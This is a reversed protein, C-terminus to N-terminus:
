NHLGTDVPTPTLSYDESKLYLARVLYIMPGDYFIGLFIETLFPQVFTEGELLYSVIAGAAGLALPFLIAGLAPYEGEREDEGM